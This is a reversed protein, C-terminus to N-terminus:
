EEVLYCPDLGGKGLGDLPEKCFWNGALLQWKGPNKIMALRITRYAGIVHCMDYDSHVLLWIDGDEPPGLDLENRKLNPMDWTFIRVGIAVDEPATIERERVQM